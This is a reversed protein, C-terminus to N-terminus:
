GIYLNESAYRQTTSDGQIEGFIRFTLADRHSTLQLVLILKKRAAMSPGTAATGVHWDAPAFISLLTNRLFDHIFWGLVGHIMSVM